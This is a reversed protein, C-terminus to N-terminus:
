ECIIRPVARYTWTYPEEAVLEGDLYVRRINTVTFGQKPSEPTCGPSSDYITAASTINYHGSAETEVTYYPTSWIDVYVRANEVYSNILLAYPTNNRFKLDLGPLSLTAERGAPYRAFWESHPRHQVDELGAFYAANYTTTAMQSLGGGMGDTHKNNIIVGAEVYGNAADIPGIAAALSFVEGPQVITGALRKAANTINRERRPERPTLPTSFSSIREKFDAIDLDAATVEPPTEVYPLPETRGISTAAAVVAAELSAHDLVRQPDGPDVVLMHAADFVVSANRPGNELDPRQALLDAGLRRGDVTLTALGDKLTYGVYGALEEPSLVVNGNPSTLTIAKAFVHENMVREFRRAEATTLAPQTIEGVAPVAAEFPWGERIREATAAADLDIGAAGDTAVVRAGVFTIVAETLESDLEAKLSAGASALASEDVSVVPLLEGAGTAHAILRSPNLTFGVVQSATADADFRLGLEAPARTAVVDGALVAVDEANAANALEAIVTRAEDAGLGSIDRGMIVTDRPVFQAAIAQAVVYVAVAAAIGIGVALGRRARRPAREDAAAAERGATPKPAPAPESELSPELAPEPELGPEPEEEADAEPEGEPEPESEPEHDAEREPELQPDDAGDEDAGDADAEGESTALAAPLPIAVTPADADDLVDPEFPEADLVEAEAAVRPMPVPPMPAVRAAPVHGSAKREVRRRLSAHAVSARRRALEQRALEIEIQRRRSM